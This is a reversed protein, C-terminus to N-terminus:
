TSSEDIAGYTLYLDYHVNASVCDWVQRHFQVGLMQYDDEKELVYDNDKLLGRMLDCFTDRPVNVAVSGRGQARRYPTYKLGAYACFMLTVAATVITPKTLKM